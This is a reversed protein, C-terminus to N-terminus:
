AARRRKYWLIGASAFALFICTWFFWSDLPYYSRRPPSSLDPLGFAALTFQSDKVKNLKVEQFVVERERIIEQKGDPSGAQTVQLVQKPFIFAGPEWRACQIKCSVTSRWSPDDQVLLEYERLAWDLSRDLVIRGSLYGGPAGAREFVVEVLEHEDQATRSVSGAKFYPDAFLEEITVSTAQFAACVFEDSQNEVNARIPGMKKANAEFGSIVFPGDRVSQHLAFAQKPTECWVKGAFESSPGQLVYKLTVLRCQEKRFHETIAEAFRGHGANGSERYSLRAQCMLNALPLRLRNIAAPYQSRLSHELDSREDDDAIVVAIPLLLLILSMEKGKPLSKALRSVTGARSGWMKLIRHFHPNVPWLEWFM